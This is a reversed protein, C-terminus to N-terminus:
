AARIQFIDLAFKGSQKDAILFGISCIKSIDIAPADQIHIGRRFFQFERLMFEHEAAEGCSSFGSQYAGSDHIDTRMTLKFRKGDGKTRVVLKECGSLDWTKGQSRMSCFGGSNELSVNGSFRLFGEHEMCMSQSIGGMVPDNVTIWSTLDGPEYITKM